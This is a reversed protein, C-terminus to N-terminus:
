LWRERWALLSGTKDRLDYFRLEVRANLLPRDPMTRRLLRRLTGLFRRVDTSREADFVQTFRILYDSHWGDDDVWHRRLRVGMRDAVPAEAAERVAVLRRRAVLYPLEPRRTVFRDVASDTTVMPWVVPGSVEMDEELVLEHLNM